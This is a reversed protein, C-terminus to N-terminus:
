CAMAVILLLVSYNQYPEAPVPTLYSCHEGNEMIRTIRHLGPWNIKESGTFAGYKADATLCYRSLYTCVLM